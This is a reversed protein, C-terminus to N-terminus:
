VASEANKKEKISSFFFWFSSSEPLKPHEASQPTRTLANGRCGVVKQFLHVFVKARNAVVR